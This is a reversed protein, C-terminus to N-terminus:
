SELGFVEPRFEPAHGQTIKGNIIDRSTLTHDLEMEGIINRLADELLFWLFLSQRQAFWADMWGGTMRAMVVFFSRSM